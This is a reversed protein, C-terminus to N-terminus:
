RYAQGQLECAFVLTLQKGFIFTKQKKEESFFAKRKQRALWTSGALEPASAASRAPRASSAASNKV